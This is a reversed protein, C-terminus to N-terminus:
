NCRFKWGDDNQIKKPYQKIFSEDKYISFEYFLLVFNYISL